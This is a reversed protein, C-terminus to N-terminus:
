SLKIDQIPIDIQFYWLLKTYVETNQHAKILTYKHILDMWTYVINFSQMCAMSEYNWELNEAPMIVGFKPKRVGVNAPDLTINLAISIM